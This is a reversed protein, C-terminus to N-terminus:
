EKNKKKGKKMGKKKREIKNKREKLEKNKLKTKTENYFVSMHYAETTDDTNDIDNLVLLIEDCIDLCYHITKIHDLDYGDNWEYVAFYNYLHEAKEKPTM